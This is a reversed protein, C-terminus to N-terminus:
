SAGRQIQEVVAGLSRVAVGVVAPPIVEGSRYVSELMEQLELLQLEASFRQPVPLIEPAQQIQATM